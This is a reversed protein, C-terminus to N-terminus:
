LQLRSSIIINEYFMLKFDNGINMCYKGNLMLKCDNGKNMCYKGNLMWKCNNQEDLGNM